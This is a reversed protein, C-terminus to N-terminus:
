PKPYKKTRKYTGSLKVGKIVTGKQKVTMSKKNIKFTLSGKKTKYRYKNKGIHKFEGFKKYKFNKLNKKGKIIYFCGVGDDDFSTYANMSIYYTTGKIKKKYEGAYYRDDSAEATMEISSLLMVTCMIYILIKKM